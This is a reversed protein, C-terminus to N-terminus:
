VLSQPVDTYAHIPVFSPTISLSVQIDSELNKMISIFLKTEGETLTIAKKGDAAEAM